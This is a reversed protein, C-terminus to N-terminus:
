DLRHYLHALFEGGKREDDKYQAEEPKSDLHLPDRDRDRPKGKDDNHHSNAPDHVIVCSASQYRYFDHMRSSVRLPTSRRIVIHNAPVPM